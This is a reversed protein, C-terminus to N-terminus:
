DTYWKQLEGFNEFDYRGISTELIDLQNHFIGFSLGNIFYEKGINDKILFILYGHETNFSFKEQLFEITKDDDLVSIEIGNIETPLISRSVGKIIIDVNYDRDGTKFSRLLLQSHTASFDVYYFKEKKNCYIVM